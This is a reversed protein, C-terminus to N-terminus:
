LRSCGDFRVLMFDDDAYENFYTYDQDKDEIWKDM